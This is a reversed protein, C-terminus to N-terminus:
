EWDGKYERFTAVQSLISLNEAITRLTDDTDMENKKAYKLIEGIIHMLFERDQDEPTRFKNM